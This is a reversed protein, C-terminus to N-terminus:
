KKALTKQELLAFIVKAIDTNDIYRGYVPDKGKIHKAFLESGQGKAFFFVLSNTHETSNWKIAPM